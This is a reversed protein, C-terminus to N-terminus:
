QSSAPGPELPLWFTLAFQSMGNATYFRHADSRAEGSELELHSCGRERAWSAAADLLGRGVGLSRYTATVVFEEVWCRRGFRMSPFIIYLSALGIAQSGDFALLVDADPEDLCWFFNASARVRSYDPPRGGPPEFLEELLELVAPEDANTAPRITVAM